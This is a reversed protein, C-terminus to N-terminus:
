CGNRWKRILPGDTGYVPDSLPLPVHRIEELAKPRDSPEGRRTNYDMGDPYAGAILFDASSSIKKHGTGAPLVVVDGTNLEVQAGQEGGLQLLASGSIVGLVEHANSHYHHYPFVGNQWSNRWGNRNFISEIQESQNSLANVYLLVPLTPHNPIMGDDEFMFAKVTENM